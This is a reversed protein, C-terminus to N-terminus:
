HVERGEHGVSVESRVHEVTFYDVDQSSPSM